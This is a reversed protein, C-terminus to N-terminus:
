NGEVPLKQEVSPAVLTAVTCAKAVQAGGDDAVVDVRSTTTVGISVLCTGGSTDKAMRGQHKGVAYDTVAFETTNLQDLGAHDYINIGITYGSTSADANKDWRCFRSGSQNGSQGPQLQNESVIAPDLLTCPDVAALPDGAANSTPSGASTDQATTTPAATPSGGTTSCGSTVLAALVAVAIVPTPRKVVRRTM